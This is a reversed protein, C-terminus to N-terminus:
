GTNRVGAAIGNITLLVAHTLQVREQEEGSAREEQEPPLALPGGLDRLRQLLMIQFYSLPDVYPNRRRISEQLVPTHDLLAHSKVISLIARETREYEQQIASAMHQRLEGDEVLMAYHHAIHMDAKSLTMQMNDLFARLFPWKQYMEQLQAIHVSPNEAIYTELATGVGYWSPLVYRSQMWSFVWPIARLEEISHGTTRRAPRSGINLWGLELIPTAQEFFHVFDPDEYIFKRYQAYAKESLINLTQIWSEPTTMQATMLLTEPISSQVVGAVVLEMNRIAIEHLGYKFSLMEGQETIRIRGNVTQPPQGLIAEYIPGGGRGIAGGRGHFMTIGIGFQRGLAAVREQAKYLEWGSTLIGGDKSSDSYGLMVQQQNHCQHLYRQYDPHTFARELMSTCSRLDSITEFLPVIPLNNIGAEKCFFQVELLDSLSTAMSIIYCTVAKEGFIERAQRIAHFTNLIHRTEKSLPLESRTLLRPDRLLYELIEVRENEDLKTYDESRLGTVQLLEALATAHRQSHQRTDLAVFHFGFIEVQRILKTLQGYALDDEHDHLLSTQVLRLDALLEEANAYAVTPRLSVALTEGVNQSSPSIYPLGKRDGQTGGVPTASKTAELRNWMFSFKHRYPELAMPPGFVQEYEPLRRADQQLSQRLEDTIQLHNLSQSYEQALNKITARYHEIIYGRQLTLAELLTEPGVFPNGDQDGGIWSGMHLFSPVQVSPYAKHLTEEFEEYLDPLADYLVEDLYYIGMKIEDVPTPRVHRVADTRWLLAVISELERQWQAEQRPTMKKFDREELLETIRRTKTILSRRTAETPHATFVLDISLTDLLDQVAPEDLANQQLFETLGSISGRPPTYTAQLEHVRLRRIRHYQEATNVLHFYVTFARIVGIATDLSCQQVVRTIEQDLAAIENKLHANTSDQSLRLSDDRLRKCAHRLQEVTDFMTNGGHRRIAQGLADGLTHIDHRLPADKEARDHREAM